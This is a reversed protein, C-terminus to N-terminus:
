SEKKCTVFISKCDHMCTKVKNCTVDCQTHQAKFIIIVKFSVETIYSGCSLIHGIISYCFGYLELYLVM